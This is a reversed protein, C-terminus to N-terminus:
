GVRVRGELDIKFTGNREVCGVGGELV